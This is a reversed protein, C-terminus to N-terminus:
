AWTNPIHRLSPACTKIYHLVDKSSTFYIDQWFPMEKQYINELNANLYSEQFLSLKPIPMDVGQQINQIIQDCQEKCNTYPIFSLFKKHHDYFDQVFLFKKNVFKEVKQISKELIDINYFSNFDFYLIESSVPYAMSQQKRWLGHSKHDRFGFKYFERLVYRPISQHSQDLFPYATYIQQLVSQYFRNKLKDVTNVDLDEDIGLDGSRLLSVSSVLLLDDPSFRISIIKDFNTLQQPGLEHYHSACFLKQTQYQKSKVHSTGLTTFFNSDIATIGFFKNLTTELFHGHTGAVFDIAIKSNM